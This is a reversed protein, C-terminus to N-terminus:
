KSGGSGKRKATTAEPDAAATVTFPASNSEEENPNRVTFQATGAAAPTFTGTLVTASVFTTPVPVQDVEVTSGAVYNAGTVTVAVEVGAVGSPPALSTITPDVPPPTGGNGMGPFFSQSYFREARRVPSTM